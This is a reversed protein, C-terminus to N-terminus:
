RLMVELKKRQPRVVFSVIEERAASLTSKLKAIADQTKLINEMIEIRSDLSVIGAHQRVKQRRQKLRLFRL